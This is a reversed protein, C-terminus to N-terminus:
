GHRVVGRLLRMWWPTAVISLAVMASCSAWAYEWETASIASM